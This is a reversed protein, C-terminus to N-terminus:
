QTLLLLIGAIILIVGIVETRNPREKFVFYSSAFTFILEIQALARVYAVNQITMATFWGTSALMGAVGVLLSPKWHKLITSIQGPERVRLYVLMIATQFVTVCALTFGAQMLFHPGGLAISAGRYSVASLGFLGGSALGWLAPRDIMSLVLNRATIPTRAVSIAIVGVLGILIAITATLSIRDGLLLVGIIAAQVPETKSYATGVAFNRFSFLHLLLFTALIQCVGGAAGYLLFALNPEPWSM